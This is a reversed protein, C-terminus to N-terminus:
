FGVLAAVSDVLAALEPDTIEVGVLPEIWEAAAARNGERFQVLAAHARALHFTPSVSLAMQFQQLAQGWDRLGEYVLGRLYYTRAEAPDADAAKQLYVLAQTTDAIQLYLYALNFYVYAPTEPALDAGELYDQIAARYEGVQFKAQAQAFLKEADLMRLEREPDLGARRYEEAAQERMNLISYSDGLARHAEHFGPDLLLARQFMLAAEQHHGQKQLVSGINFFDMRPTALSLTFYTPAHIPIALVAAFLALSGGRLWQRNRFRRYLELIGAASCPLLILLIPLRYESAAFFLLTTLLLSFGFLGPILFERRRQSYLWFVFGIPAVLGFTFPFRRLWASFYEAAYISLNNPIETQHFFLYFKRALLQLYDLPHNLIYGIGQNLWYRSSATISLEKGVRRSAELRYDLNEFRPEASRIFPAEWYIGEASPNNGAYFNMGLSSTTLVWEGGVRYNRYAVPSLVIVIGLAIGGARKLDRYRAIWTFVFILLLAFILINPRALASLGLLIGTLVDLRFKRERSLLLLLICGDLLLILTATLLVGEYYVFPRYLAALFAAILGTNEDFLRRALHYVILVVLVGACAQLLAALQTAPTFIKYLFALLYPYLPSMFFIGEGGAKGQAIAIAWTHYYESDIVPVTLVPTNWISALYIFRLVAALILVASLILRKMEIQNRFDTYFPPDM